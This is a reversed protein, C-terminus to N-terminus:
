RTILPFIPSKFANIPRPHLKRYYDAKDLDKPTGIGKEYLNELGISHTNALCATHEAAFCWAFTEEANYTFGLSLHPWAARGNCLMVKANPNGGRAAVEAWRKTEIPQTVTQPDCRGIVGADENSDITAADSPQCHMYRNINQATDMMVAAFEPDGAEAAERAAQLYEQRTATPKELPLPQLGRRLRAPDLVGLYRLRMLAAKAAKHGTDAAKQLWADRQEITPLHEAGIVFPIRALYYYYDAEGEQPSGYIGLSPKRNLWHEFEAKSLPQLGKLREWELDCASLRPMHLATAHAGIVSIALLATITRKISGGAVVAAGLALVISKMRGSIRLQKANTNMAVGKLSSIACNQERGFFLNKDLIM